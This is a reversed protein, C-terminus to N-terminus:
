ENGRTQERTIVRRIRNRQKTCLRVISEGRLPPHYRARYRGEGNEVPFDAYDDVQVRAYSRCKNNPQTILLKSRKKLRSSIITCRHRLLKVSRHARLISSFPLYSRRM